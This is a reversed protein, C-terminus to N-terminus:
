MLVHIYWEIILINKFYNLILIVVGSHAQSCLYNAATSSSMTMNLLHHHHPLLLWLLVPPPPLAGGWEQGQECRPKHGRKREQEGRTGPRARGENGGENEGQKRGWEMRVGWGQCRGRHRLVRQWKHRKEAKTHERSLQWWAKKLNASTNGHNLEAQSLSQAMTEPL